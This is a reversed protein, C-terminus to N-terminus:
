SLPIHWLWSVIRLKDSEVVYFPCSGEKNYVSPTSFMMHRDASVFAVYDDVQFFECIDSWVEKWGISIAPNISCFKVDYLPSYRLGCFFNSCM